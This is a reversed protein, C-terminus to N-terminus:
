VNKIINHVKETLVFLLHFSHFDYDLSYFQSLNEM